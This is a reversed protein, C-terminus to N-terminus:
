RAGASRGRRSPEPTTWTGSADIVARADLKEESGDTHSVHVTFPQSSRDADVLRDRGKRSVGTVRAGLRVQDGLAEALPALYREIWEGGTPYGESPLSGGPRSWCGRRPRTSWSPGARSCGSM